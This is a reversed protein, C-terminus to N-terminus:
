REVVLYEVGYNRQRSLFKYEPRSLFRGMRELTGPEERFGSKFKLKLHASMDKLSVWVGEEGSEPRRYLSLLMEGLGDLTRYQLNHEMLAQEEEKTLWYREGDQIEQKLQAYLQSYEVPTQFDIDGDVTVCVFRRSGSPDTLPHMENTTGIFSAYRRHQQYAKGYPPRYKLDSTSVLYKLVVQQRQTIKDFEDLNILAFSTLGLNLDNENKFNIRDNYYERQPRPLLIRCFSTKGCGQRGILLPMLANGTLQGRGQWMAVMSRMWIHFLYPWEAYGTKVRMALPKVRDKGDWRPLHELFDTMPEYRRIDASHVYRRIDKDWCKIGLELARMTMTNRVEETLDQFDLGMGLRERYEAVGRMVNLRLEYNQRLFIDIKMTLLTESPIAKQPVVINKRKKYRKEAEDRYENEFIQRVLEKRVWFQHHYLALHLCAAMSLGTECCRAALRTALLFPRQPDEHSIGSIDDYAKSLCFEFVRHLDLISDLEMGVDDSRRSIGTANGLHQFCDTYFPVCMPNYHVTEDSSVFCTRELHPELKEVTVGLQANYVMRAMEYLNRHFRSIDDDTMLGGEVKKGGSEVLEGRCVIKVSRGTAGVFSLLTQPMLSAGRSVAEAEETGTLNDVELLVLGTYARRVRQHNRNEYQAAFCLRPLDFHVNQEDLPMWDDYRKLVKSPIWDRLDEVELAYRGTRIDNVLEELDILRLTENGRTKKVITIKNM